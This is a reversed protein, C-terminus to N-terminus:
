KTEEKSDLAPPPSFEAWFCSGKGQESEVGYPCGHAELIGKVISLGLGTGKVPRKHTESSRYYRTWITPIDEEAIGKGSDIVEFRSNEGKRCLRIKVRKDEGTYNVANGILNYLVQEVRERNASIYLDDEVETDFSYGGTESLYGFRGAVRYVEESLNFVTKEDAGYGAQIKSLDLVDAVLAALRDSEDIIVKANAERKRKDDGSIELIMSAYAKIMTLPTKFDHSVNAILEKQMRDTKSIEDRAYELAESLENMERCFYSEKFNLSYNGRALEKARATVETVPKTVLMAVFASAVFALILASLSTLLSIMGMGSEFENLPEISCVLCLYCKKGGFIVESAYALNDSYTLIVNGDTVKQKLEDALKIHSKGDFVGEGDADILYGIVGHRLCLELFKGEAADATPTEQLMEESEAGAEGLKKVTQERYHRDLLLNQVIVFLLVIVIAFLAFSFWLILNLSRGSRLIERVNQGSQKKTNEKVKRKL